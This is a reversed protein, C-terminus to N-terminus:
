WDIKIDTLVHTWRTGLHTIGWIYLDYEENYFVIEDTDEQLINAGQGSILVYQFIEDDPDPTGNVLDWYGIDMLKGPVQVGDFASALAHYDVYGKEMGYDSIEQGYYYKKSM